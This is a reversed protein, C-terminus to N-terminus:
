PRQGANGTQLLQDLVRRIGSPEVWPQRLAINGNVDIVFAASPASGYRQWTWNDLADVVVLDRRELKATSWAAQAIRAQLSEPQRVRTGTLRNINTLWEGDRYPSKSGAPHAEVTYVVVFAVREGYERQLRGIDFRRYRYVPCSHSGLQLVVPRTGVLDSLQVTTGDLRRAQLEPAPQGVRPARRDFQALDEGAEVPFLTACGTLTAAALVGLGVRPLLARWNM